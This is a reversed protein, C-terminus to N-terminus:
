RLPTFFAALARLLSFVAPLWILVMKPPTALLATMARVPESVANTAALATTPAFNSRSIANTPAIEPAVSSSKFSSSSRARERPLVVMYLAVSAAFAICDNARVPISVLSIMAAVPGARFRAPAAPWSRVAVVCVIAAVIACNLRSDSSAVLIASTYLTAIVFDRNSMCLRESAMFYPPVTPLANLIVNSSVVAASAKNRLMPRSPLRAPVCNRIAIADAALILLSFIFISVFSPSVASCILGSNLVKLSIMSFRAVVEMPVPSAKIRNPRRAPAFM